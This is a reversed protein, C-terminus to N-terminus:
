KFNLEFRFRADEEYWMPFNTGWQNNYLNFWVKNKDFVTNQFDLIAPKGISVLPADATIIDMDDYSVGFDSAHLNHNGNKVIIPEIFEGLKSIKLNDSFSDFGLNLMEACRNAPKNFWACDIFIGKETPIVTTEVWEPCGYKIHAEDAFKIIATVNDGNRLVKVLEPKYDCRKSVAVSMGIKDYDELAWEEYCRIYQEFFRKYDEPGFQTYSWSAIKHNSDAYIKNKYELFDISGDAAFRFSLDETEFLTDLAVEQLEDAKEMVSNRKYTSICSLAKAKESMPLISIADKIYERQERWSQEMKIYNNNNRVKYFDEKIFNKHDALHTKEDLGWTHEAIPLLRRNFEMRLAKDTISKRYRLLSRFMSVKGPDTGAGHIWSDGIEETLVPFTETQSRLTEAVANLDSAIIQAEPYKEQLKAFLKRVDDASPPSLNDGAHVFYVAAGTDGLPSCSGYVNDYIVTIAEGTPATWRFIPPTVPVASAPNVGIQMFEIGAKAMLPVIARTHGPVDTMKCAITKKGFLEDLENSISLGAEFLEPDMLETHSTFPLAHWSVDGALVQEKFESLEATSLSKVYQYILWSGTTWVFREKGGSERLEKATALAKPIYTKIYKEKINEAFDTFGIDLHTKFVVFLKNIPVM